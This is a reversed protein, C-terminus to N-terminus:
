ADDEDEDRGYRDSWYKTNVQYEIASNQGRSSKPFSIAFGIVPIASIFSSSLLNPDLPYLLLLGNQPKRQMRIFHGSPREPKNKSRTDGKEWAAINHELANKKQEDSLDLQEDEPSLINSKKLMYLSNDDPTNDARQILGIKYGGIEAQTASSLSNSVLAVTWSDLEGYATLKQIYKILLDSEAQRCLPHSRYSKLFGIIERAPVHQWKIRRKDRKDPSKLLQIWQNAEDLNKQHISVDKHFITTQLLCGSFSVRMKRGNRIKNAATVNLGAPHTRVKLGYDEPTSHSLEMFNFERKLEENAVAIHEYWSVLDDTTYLQCLDVYGPRYGFWRGMQLLTDYNKAPRIYYSISLGELTLGRSLKDGGIAIVSLGNQNNDYDLIGGADGNIGRVQIRTIAELLETRVSDWELPTLQPDNYVQIIYNFAPIYDKIWIAELQALLHVAQTGTNYEIMRRINSLEVDVLEMVQLQVLKYRTVHILMSNHVNKQGRVRRAACSIIFSQIARILSEPLKDVKLEKKHALPFKIKADEACRILPMGNSTNDEGNLDEILGFIQAAGIYNSPPSIYYIFGKPFLDNGYQLNDEEDPLIFINAFPTATYGVYSGQQFANLILRIARNIRSPDEDEKKTNVSANDAEDDILLLPISDVIKKGTEPHTKGQNEVWKLIRELVGTNKKVVLLLPSGGLQLNASKNARFDGNHSSYTLPHAILQDPTDILGVGIRSENGHAKGVESEFGLFEADLRSQTQSRLDNTMGALVIILKYGADAAKCILGTYNATKGSQVDGVVMGRRDWKGSCDPNGLDGLILDTIRDLKDIVLQPRKKEEELYQSYRKWFRWKIKTKREPLWSVHKHDRLISPDAQWTTVLSLLDRFLTEKNIEELRGLSQQMTVIADIHKKILEETHPAPIDRLYLLVNKKTKEYLNNM